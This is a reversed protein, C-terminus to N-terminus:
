HRLICGVLLLKQLIQIHHFKFITLLIKLVKIKYSLHIINTFNSVVINM